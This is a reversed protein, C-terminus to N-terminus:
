SAYKLFAVCTLVRIISSKLLANSSTSAIIEGTAGVTAQFVHSFILSGTFIYKLSAYVIGAENAHNGHIETGHPNASLASESFSNNGTHNCIKVGLNSSCFSKSIALTYSCAVLNQFFIGSHNL